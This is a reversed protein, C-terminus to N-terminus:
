DTKLADPVRGVSSTTGGTKDTESPIPIRPTNFFTWNPLATPVPRCYDVEWVTEDRYKLKVGGATMRGVAYHWASEHGAGDRPELLLLVDPNTGSTALGFVAGLFTKTGPDSYEFIPTPLLRMEETVNTRDDLLIRASFASVLKRAALKRATNQTPVAPADTLPRFEVGPATSRYSRVDGWAAELLRESVSTFCYGWRPRDQAMVEIKEFAVPRGQDTWVWMTADLFFRPQDHYRFVPSDVLQPQRGNQQYRVTTGQALSRMQDLLQARQQEQDDSNRPPEAVAAISTVMMLVLVLAGGRVPGRWKKPQARPTM